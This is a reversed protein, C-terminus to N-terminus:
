ASKRRRRSAALGALGTALLTMTAPEPVVSEAEASEALILNDVTPWLFGSTPQIAAVQLSTLSTLGVFGLFSTTQANLIQEVVTGDANTASVQVGGAAFLGSINSGFFNGGIAFVSSSFNSFLIVDTATNTSLWPDAVSGAGFFSGAPSATATYQFAGSGRVIPTPTSGTISFGTFGDTASTGVAGLFAAQDTYVTFQAGAVSPAVILAAAIGIFRTSRLLLM